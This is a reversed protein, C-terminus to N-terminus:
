MTWDGKNKKEAHIKGPRYRPPMEDIRRAHTRWLLSPNRAYGVCGGRTIEDGNNWVPLWTPRDFLESLYTCQLSRSIFCVLLKIGQFTDLWHPQHNHESTLTCTNLFVLVIVLWYFTQSKIIRRCLKRCRCNVRHFWRSVAVVLVKIYVNMWENRYFLGNVSRVPWFCRYLRIFSMCMYIIAFYLFLLLM